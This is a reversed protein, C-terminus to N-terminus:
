DVLALVGDLPAPDFAMGTVGAVLTRIPQGIAAHRASRARLPIPTLLTASLFCRLLMEQAAPTSLKSLKARLRFGKAGVTQAQGTSDREHGSGSGM